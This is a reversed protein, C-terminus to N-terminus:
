LASTNSLVGEIYCFWKQVNVTTKFKPSSESPVLQNANLSCPPNFLLSPSTFTASLSPSSPSPPSFSFLSSLSPLPLLSLFPIHGINFSFSVGFYSPPSLLFILTFSNGQLSYWDQEGQHPQLGFLSNLQLFPPFSPLFHFHLLIDVKKLKKERRRKRRGGACSRM